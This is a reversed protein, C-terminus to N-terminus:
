GCDSSSSRALGSMPGSSQIVEQGTAWCLGVGNIRCSRLCKAAWCFAGRWSGRWGVRRGYLRPQRMGRIRTPMMRCWLNELQERREPASALLEDHLAQQRESLEFIAPEEPGPWDEWQHLPRANMDAPLPYGVNKFWPVAELDEVFRAVALGVDSEPKM